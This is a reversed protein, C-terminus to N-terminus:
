KKIKPFPDEIVTKTFSKTAVHLNVPFDYKRVEGVCEEAFKKLVTLDDKQKLKFPYIKWM